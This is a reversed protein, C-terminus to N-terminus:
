AGCSSLKHGEVLSGAHGPAQAGCSSLSFGCVVVLSFGARRLSSSAGCPFSGAHRLQGLAALFFFFVFLIKKM